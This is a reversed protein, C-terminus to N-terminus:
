KIAIVLQSPTMKDVIDKTTSIFDNLQQIPPNGATPLPIFEKIKIVLNDAKLNFGELQKM